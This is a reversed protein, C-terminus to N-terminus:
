HFLCPDNRSFSILIKLAKDGRKRHNREFPTFSAIPTLLRCLGHKQMLIRTFSYDDVLLLLNRQKTNGTAAYVIIFAVFVFFHKLKSYYFLTSAYFSNM